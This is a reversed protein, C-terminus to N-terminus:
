IEVRDLECRAATGDPSNRIIVVAREQCAEFTIRHAVVLRQEDPQGYHLLVVLAWIYTM